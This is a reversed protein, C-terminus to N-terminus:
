VPQPLFTFAPRPLSSGMGEEASGTETQRFAATTLAATPDKASTIAAWHRRRRAMGSMHGRDGKITISRKRGPAM